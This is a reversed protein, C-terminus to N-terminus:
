RRRWGLLRDRCRHLPRCRKVCCCGAASAALGAMVVLSSPEPVPSSELEIIGLVNQSPTDNHVPNKNWSGPGTPNDHSNGHIYWYYGRADIGAYFFNTYDVPSGDSWDLSVPTGDVTTTGTLGIWALNHGPAVVDRAYADKAFEALFDNESQDQVSTLHGGLAVAEAEASAWTGYDLTLAYQHGGYGTWTYDSYTAGIAVQRLGSIVLVSGILGFLFTKRMM